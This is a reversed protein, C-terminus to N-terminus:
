FNKSCLEFQDALEQLAINYDKVDGNEDKIEDFM